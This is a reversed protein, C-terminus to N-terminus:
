RPRTRLLPFITDTGLNDIKHEFRPIGPPEPHFRPLPLSNGHTIAQSCTTFVSEAHERRSAHERAADDLKLCFSVVINMPDRRIVGHIELNKYAFSDM